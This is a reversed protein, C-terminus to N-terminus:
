DYLLTKRLDLRFTDFFEFLDLTRRDRHLGIFVNTFINFFNFFNNKLKKM